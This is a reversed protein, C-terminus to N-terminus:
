LSLETSINQDNVAPIRDIFMDLFINQLHIM